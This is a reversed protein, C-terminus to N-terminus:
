VFARFMLFNILIFIRAIFLKGELFYKGCFLFPQYKDFSVARRWSGWGVKLKNRFVKERVFLKLDYSVRCDTVIQQFLDSLYSAEEFEMWGTKYKSMRLIWSSVLSLRFDILSKPIYKKSFCVVNQQKIAVSWNINNSVLTMKDTYSHTITNTWILIGRSRESESERWSRGARPAWGLQHCFMGQEIFVPLNRSTPPEEREREGLEEPAPEPTDPPPPPLQWWHGLGRSRPRCETYDSRQVSWESVRGQRSM